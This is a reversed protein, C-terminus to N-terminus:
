LRGSMTVGAPERDLVAASTPARSSEVGVDHTAGIAVDVGLAALVVLGVVTAVTRARTRVRSGYRRRAAVSPNPVARSGGQVCLALLFLVTAAIIVFDALNWYYPGLHVFDVAGRVSGPATVDHMGLRDLLNSSWGGIMLAGPVLVHVPRRRWVLFFGALSLLGFDLLDLLAGTVPGSYWGSVVSGVTWTGGANIIAEPAHRWGWWKATQDLLVVAALLGAALLVSSRGGASDSGRRRPSPTLVGPQYTM